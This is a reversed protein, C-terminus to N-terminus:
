IIIFSVSKNLFNQFSIIIISAYKFFLIIKSNIISSFIM